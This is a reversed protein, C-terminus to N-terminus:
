GTLSKPRHKPRDRCLTATITAIREYVVELGVFEALAKEVLAGKSNEWGKLMYIIDTAPDLDLIVALDRRIFRKLDGSDFGTEPPYLDWGEYMRDMDAPSVPIYERGIMDVYAADFAPFNYNDYGRMPGAIYARKM